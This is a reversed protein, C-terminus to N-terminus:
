RARGRRRARTAGRPAVGSVRRIDQELRPAPPPVRHDMNGLDYETEFRRAMEDAVERRVAASFTRRADPDDGFERNWRAAAVDVMPLFRAIAGDRTYADQRKQLALARQVPVTYDRYLDGENTAYLHLEDADGAQTSRPM